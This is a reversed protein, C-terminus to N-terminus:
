LFYAPGTGEPGTGPPLSKGTDYSVRSGGDFPLHRGTGVAEPLYLMGVAAAGALYGLTSAGKGLSRFLGSLVGTLCFVGMFSIDGLWITEMIGCCTGAVAGVGAGFRYGTYLISFYFGTRVLAAATGGKELVATLFLGLAIAMGARLWTERKM